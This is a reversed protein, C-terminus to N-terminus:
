PPVEALLHDRLVRAALAAASAGAAGSLCARRLPAPARAGVAAAGLAVLLLAREAAGSLVLSGVAERALGALGVRSRGDYRAQKAYPVPVGSAGLAGLLAALNAHAIRARSARRALDGPIACYSGAGGPVAGRGLTDQLAHFLAQGVLFWLPEDRESKVAFAVADPGAAEAAALLAPILEPPDQLDGDLVVVRRGRSAALGAKTAGLQGANRPLAVLRVRPDRAAWARVRDATGDTSADDVLVLEFAPLPPAPSEAALLIREILEDVVREEDHLPAVISLAPGTM